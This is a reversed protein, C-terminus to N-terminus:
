RSGNFENEYEGITLEDGVEVRVGIQQESDTLDLSKVVAEVKILQTDKETEEHNDKIV